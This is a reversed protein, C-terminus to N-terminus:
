SNVRQYEEYGDCEWIDFNFGDEVDQYDLKAMFGVCTACWYCSYLRSDESHVTRELFSGVACMVGCAQCQHLKRTKVRKQSIQTTM